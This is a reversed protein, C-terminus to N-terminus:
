RRLRISNARHENGALIRKLNDRHTYTILVAVCAAFIVLGYQDPLGTIGFYIPAAVAVSVTALGVYRTLMIVALWVIVAPLAIPPAVVFLVGIATAGGKGGRFGYWLPYVHGLIVASAVLYTVLERSVRPDIGVGPIDLGPLLAVPLIGKGVDIVMVWIAFGIGQTRLANTAGPNRSGVERIDVGARIRGALLAGLVSGLLYAATFKLGLEFVPDGVPFEPAIRDGTVNRLPRTRFSKPADDDGTEVVDM